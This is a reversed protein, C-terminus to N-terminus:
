VLTKNLTGVIGQVQVSREHQQKPSDSDFTTQCTRRTFTICLFTLKKICQYVCLVIKLCIHM